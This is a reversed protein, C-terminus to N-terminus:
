FNAPVSCQGERLPAQNPQGADTPPPVNGVCVLPGAIVNGAIETPPLAGGQEVPGLGSNDYVLVPGGVTTGALETGATDGVLLVTGAVTSPGCGNAPGGATYVFGTSGLSALSGGVHAGCLRLGKAGYAVVDGAVRGADVELAGGPAVVVPGLVSGTVEVSQGALVVLPGLHLGTVTGTFGVTDGATGSSASSDSSGAYGASLAQAGGPLARATFTATATGSTTAVLPASGLVASGDSFTVTGTPTGSGPPLVSVTAQLDVAAGFLSSAPASLVTQTAARDVHSAVPGSGSALYTGPSGAYAASYQYTGAGPGSLACQAVGSVLPQQQCGAVPTGDASFAVPGTAEPPSVTASLTIAQGSVSPDPSVTLVTSTADVVDVPLAASSAEYYPSTADYSTGGPLQVTGGFRAVVQYGTGVDGAPLSLAGALAVGAADTSTVDAAVVSGDPSLVQFVVPESALAAGGSSLAASFGGAQGSTLQDSATGTLVLQTPAAQVQFSGQASAPSNGPSGLYSATLSYQGPLETLPLDAVATGASDTTGAVTTGGLGFLVTQGAVTAGPNAPAASLTASVGATGGYTGGTAGGLQLTFANATLAESSQLGPTFSPTFLYGNNNDMSVEGVGNVAQVLFRADVAPSGQLAANADTFTGTWQTSDTASQTLEVSQWQGHLPGSSTGTYTAWVGQTGASPDGTVTATVTVQDGSVTSTVSSITPPGALAPTNPGYSQTNNSYYLRLQLDGYSRMTATGSSAPSSRYQVGTVALQTDGGGLLTGFYNPGWTRQPFFVPSAFPVVGPNGTETAPDGTLPSTGATDSYSGAWLGVGRLTEGSVNVNETQVPLVPGGPDAVVGQPGSDYTYTSSSGAPTVTRPVLAPHVDLLASELGLTGGPTGSPAPVPTVSSAATGPAPQQDPEQLGLMPLGYLTIELLAKEELGNVQDLSSLYQQKAALLAAGVAVPASGNGYGLQQALDVYIQDSYAVYNTDGYQYGTGAILTAGAETFAQPWALPDTVGPIAAAPDIGYGAHCGAGIVLSGQLSSGVQQQFQNTTLTTTEDAALLNNASFHGALFVLDHHSAFLSGAFDTASWSSSPAAGDPAILTDNTAGSGLGAAFAREVANAPPAMFDYGTVLSSTPTPMRGGENLFQQITAAIDSPTQVLRGVAATPLPVTTGQLTIQSAAGYQDDSLYYNDALAAGAPSTTLLPPVYGSEPALGATDPYRFFPVVSDDGVIVVYKLNDTSTRYSNVIDQVAGAVFNEAYPCGPYQQAQSVLQDVRQSQSLDVVVGNTASALAQLDPYLSGGPAAQPMLQSNDVIVTQYAPGGAGSITGSSSFTSLTVGQCPGGTTRVSLTFPQFPAFAGNNGSVRVYFYGSNDWTDANVSKDVAGPVTSVALLSDLQAVSYASSFASPSFASPSFASPSFASPSFASPSFASPSFASPSFASPSYASGPTQASLAALNLPSSQEAQYAQGIDSFVAVQYDAPVNALSVDVQQGPSVPFRYWSANGQFDITGQTGAGTTTATGTLDQATLWSTNPVLAAEPVLSVADIFGGASDQLNPDTSAFQLVTSDATATVAYRAVVWNAGGQLGSGPQASGVVYSGGWQVSITNNSPPTNPRARYAFSLVYQEGPVTAVTQTVGGVCNPELEDYQNGDYPTVKVIAQQQLEIGCGNIATWGPITALAPPSIPANVFQAPGNLVEEPPPTSAVYIQFGYPSTVVPQEFSGNTVLQNGAVTVPVVASPPSEVGAVDQVATLQHPGSLLDVAVSWDGSTAATAAGVTVGGDMVGVQAGPDATGSVVVTPTPQALGAPSTIVPAAPASQALAAPASADLLVGLMGAVAVLAAAMPTARRLAQAPTYRRTRPVHM